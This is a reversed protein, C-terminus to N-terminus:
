ASKQLPLVEQQKLFRVLGTDRAVLQAVYDTATMGREAAAEYLAAKLEPHMKVFVVERPGKSRPGRKGPGAM